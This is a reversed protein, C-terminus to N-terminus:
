EFWHLDHWSPEPEPALKQPKAATKVASQHKAAPVTKSDQGPPCDARGPMSTALTSLLVATVLLKKM